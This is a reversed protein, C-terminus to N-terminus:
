KQITKIKHILKNLHKQFNIKHIQNKTKIQITNLITNTSYLKSPQITNFLNHLNILPLQITNLINKFNKKNM